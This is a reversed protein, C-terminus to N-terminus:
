LTLTPKLSSKSCTLYKVPAL